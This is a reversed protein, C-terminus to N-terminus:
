FLSAGAMQLKSSELSWNLAGASMVEERLYRALYVDSLLEGQTVRMSHRNADNVHHGPFLVVASRTSRRLAM